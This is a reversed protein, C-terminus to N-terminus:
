RGFHVVSTMNSCQAFGIDQRPLMDIKKPGRMELVSSAKKKGHKEEKFFDHIIAQDGWCEKKSKQIELLGDLTEESPSFLMMGSCFGGTTSGGTGGGCEHYDDVQAHVTTGGHTDLNFIHDVNKQVRLDTDMWVLKDYNTMGFINLKQFHINNGPHMKCNRHLFSDSRLEFAILNPHGKVSLLAPVNTLVVLPYSSNVRKLDDALSVVGWYGGPPPRLTTVPSVAASTEVFAVSRRKLGAVKPLQKLGQSRGFKPHFAPAVHFQLKKKKTQAKQRGLLM